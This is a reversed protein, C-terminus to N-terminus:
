EFSATAGKRSHLVRRAVRSDAGITPVELHVTVCDLSSELVDSVMKRHCHRHDREYCLLCITHQQALFEITMLAQKARESALVASFIKRFEDMMGARAADRGEKPDGLERLHLYEIGVEALRDRLASKSFGPKRSQARDRVDVLLDIESKALTAILDEVSSKEYGITALM